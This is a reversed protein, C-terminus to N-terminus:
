RTRAVAHRGFPLGVGGGPEGPGVVAAVPGPFELGDRPDVGFDDAVEGTVFADVQDDVVRKRFLARALDQLSAFARFLFTRKWRQGVSRTQVRSEPQVKTTALARADGARRLRAVSPQEVEGGDFPAEVGPCFIRVVLVVFFDARRMACAALAASIGQGDCSCARTTSSPPEMSTLPCPVRSVM